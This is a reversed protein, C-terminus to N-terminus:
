SVSSSEPSGRSSAHIVRMSFGEARAAVAQGIRGFGIIGLTQGHVQAGLFGAPEWGAM